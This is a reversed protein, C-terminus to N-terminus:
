PPRTEVKAAPTSGLNELGRGAEPTGNELMIHGNTKAALEGGIQSRLKAYNEGTEKLLRQIEVEREALERKEKQVEELRKVRQMREYQMKKLNAQLKELCGNLTPLPTIKPPTRPQQSQSCDEHKQLGDMGARTQAVEYAQEREVESDDSEERSSGGEAENILAEMESKQKRKQEREAKRGLAIRGDDVLEDFGEMVDEDDRMLRTEPHDKRPRLTMENRDDDSSESGHLSMYEEAKALRARRQKKEQIEADTPIVPSEYVSLDSGFKAALDIAKSEDSDGDPTRVIDRPTSPTSTKLENLYEASYSPQDDRQRFTAVESALSAGTSKRLANKEIAQRSLNSKKVTFVSSTKEEDETMSTGGPGFSIRSSAKKRSKSSARPSSPSGVNSTSNDKLSVPVDGEQRGADEDEEDQVIIKARRRAAFSSSM